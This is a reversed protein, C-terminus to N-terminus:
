SHRLTEAPDLRSARRAPLWAALAAAGILVIIGAAVALPDGANVGFFVRRLIQGAWFAPVLGFALGIVVPRLGDKVLLRVLDRRDAGLALRVGLERRRQGALFATVGFLGIVALGIATLGILSALQAARKPWQLREQFRDRLLLFDPHQEPDLSRLVDRLPGIVAAPDRQTRVVLQTNAHLSNSPMYIKPADPREIMTLTDAVVGVVVTGVPKRLIDPSKAGPPDPAGWVRDLTAGLPDDTGWYMKAVRASIVAVAAHERVEQATYTRGRLMRLGIADFYEASTTERLGVTGDQWRQPAFTSFPQSETTAAGVVDPLARIGDLAAQWYADVRAQDYGGHLGVSVKVVHDVDFGLDATAVRVVGRTLLAAVVLLVISGAAQAGIISSRLWGRPIRGGSGPHDASLAELLNGPRSQRMPALGAALGMVLAATAAFLYTTVDPALDVRDPLTLILSAFTPVLWTAIVFGGACGALSLLLSEILLQRVVRSRTAGLALRTGIERQRRVAGALLLNALNATALLVILGIALGMSTWTVNSLVVAHRDRLSTLTVPTRDATVSAGREAAIAVALRSSEAQVSFPTGGAVPRAFVQVPPNWTRPVTSLQGELTAIQAQAARDSAGRERTQRLRTAIAAARASNRATWLRREASLPVWFTTVGGFDTPGKFGREAVGVVVFPEDDLWVTRGVLARDNSFQRTWFLHSLVLAPPAQDRDDEPALLRGLAPGAGMISFYGGSVADGRVPLAATADSAVRLRAGSGTVASATFSGAQRALRVFDVQGWSGGLPSGGTLSIAGMLRGDLSLAYISKPDRVGDGRLAVANLVTFVATSVGIAFAVGALTVGFLRRERVFIRIAFVIDQRV